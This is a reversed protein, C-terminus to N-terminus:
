HCENSTSTEEEKKPTEGEKTDGSTFLWTLSYKFLVTADRGFFLPLKGFPRSGSEIQEFKGAILM